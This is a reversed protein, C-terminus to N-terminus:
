QQKCKSARSNDGPKAEAAKSKKTMKKKLFNFVLFFTVCQCEWCVTQSPTDPTVLSPQRRPTGTHRTLPVPLTTLTPCPTNETKKWNTTSTSSSTCCFVKKGGWLFKEHTGCPSAAQEGKADSPVSSPLLQTCARLGLLLERSSYLYSTCVVERLLRRILALLVYIRTRLWSSERCSTRVRERIARHNGM